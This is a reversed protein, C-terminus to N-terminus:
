LLGGIIERVIGAEGLEHTELSNWCEEKLITRDYKM